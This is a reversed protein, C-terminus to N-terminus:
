IGVNLLNTLSTSCVECKEDAEVDEPFYIEACKPCQIPDDYKRTDKIGWENWQSYVTVPAIHHWHKGRRVSHKILKRVKSITVKMEKVNLYEQKTHENYYGISLNVACREFEPSIISIDSFSGTAEEFGFSEIYEIFDTPESSYFVCDNAGRRDLEIFMTCNALEERYLDVAEYAGAGGSEELDTLLVFPTFPEKLTTLLKLVGYVGARDDAGLGNPSWIVDKQMDHLITKDKWDNVRTKSGTYKGKADFQATSEKDWVTDTHAILCPKNVTVEPVFLYSNAGRKTSSLELTNILNEKSISLLHKINM